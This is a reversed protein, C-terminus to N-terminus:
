DEAVGRPIDPWGPSGAGLIGTAPSPWLRGTGRHKRKAIKWGHGGRLAKAPDAVQGHQTPLRSLRNGETNLGM